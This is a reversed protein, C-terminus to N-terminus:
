RIILLKEIARGEPTTVVVYYLGNALPAGSRNTLPLAIDTGGESQRTFENVMRFATTFVKVTVTATGPYNPLRISVPGSGTAPNPYIVPTSVIVVPTETSTSTAITTRTPTPTSTMTATATPTATLAVVTVASSSLYSNNSQVFYINGQTLFVTGGPVTSGVSASFSLTYNGPTLSTLDWIVTQGSQSGVPDGSTFQDFTLNVPLIDTVAAQGASGGTVTISLSYTVAEGPNPNSNSVQQSFEVTPVPTATMTVSPTFTATQTATDTHTPTLTFTPTVTVTHTSTITPTSTFTPTSTNTSTAVSTPTFTFTFIPTLTVTPTNTSSSTATATPTYTLTSTATPTHTLTATNTVTSTLTITPTSTPTFSLVPTLTITATNTSSLTQTVTATTTPTRTVTSTTTATVTFSPTSTRTMTPTLTVTPTSTSTFTKMVTATPSSTATPTGTSTYTRSATPTGSPTPTTTVTATLTMTKTPTSTATATPTASRTVTSTPTFTSTASSTTVSAVFSVVSQAPLTYTFSGGTATVATQQVLNLSSSTIWPYVASVSLDSYTFTQNQTSTNNNIAVIVVKGASAGYYASVSVGAAPVETAGIRVFGPRIFKSYNGLTYLTATPNGASNCLGEDDSNLNVLWWYCYANFNHDVICQHIQGAYYLGDDILGDGNTKESTETCWSEVTHGAVTSYSTPITNPGGGYLHMGIVRVYAAANTDAMTTNSGTLNDAFSEPTMILTNGFGANKLDPGLDTGILTDFQQPTWLCADYTPDYDPENQPSIAYPTFGYTNKCATAFSTLYTAYQPLDATIVTNTNTPNFNDNGSGEGDVSGNTKWEAPPSWASGFVRVNPNIKLAQTASGCATGWNGNGSDDIGIRIISLGPHGNVQNAPTQSSDDTWFITALAATIKSEVWNSCAGFGSITQYTTGSTVTVTGAWASPVFATLFIWPMLYIKLDTKKM